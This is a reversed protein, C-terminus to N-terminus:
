SLFNRKLLIKSKETITRDTCSVGDLFNQIELLKSINKKLLGDTSINEPYNEKQSYSFIAPRIFSSM